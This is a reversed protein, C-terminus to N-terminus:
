GTTVLIYRPEAGYTFPDAYLLRTCVTQPAYPKVADDILYANQCEAKASRESIAPLARIQSDYTKLVDVRCSVRYVGQRVATISTIFYYRNFHPIYVYNFATPTGTEILFSPTLVDVEDRFTANIETGTGLNKSLVNNEGDYYYLTITM